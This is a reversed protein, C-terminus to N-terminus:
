WKPKTTQPAADSERLLDLHKKKDAVKKASERYSPDNAVYKQIRQEPTMAEYEKLEPSSPYMLSTREELIDRTIRYLQREEQTVEGEIKNRAAVKAKGKATTRVKIPERTTPDYEFITNLDLTDATLGMGGGDGEMVEVNTPVWKTKGTTPDEVVDFWVEKGSVPHKGKQQGISKKTPKSHNSIDHFEDVTIEKNMLAEFPTKSTDKKPQLKVFADLGEYIAKAGNQGYNGGIAGLKAGAETVMGLIKDPPQEFPKKAFFDTVIQNAQEQKARGQLIEVASVDRQFGSDVFSLLSGRLRDPRSYDTFSPM